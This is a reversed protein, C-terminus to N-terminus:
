WPSPEQFEGFAQRFVDAMEGVTAGARAAEVLAPMVNHGEDADQRLRSLTRACAAADRAGVRQRTRAIQRDAIGPDLEFAEV